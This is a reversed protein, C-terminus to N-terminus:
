SHVNEERQELLTERILHVAVDPPLDPRPVFYFLGRNVTWIAGTSPDSQTRLIQMIVMGDISNACAVCFATGDIFWTAAPILVQRCYPCEPDQRFHYPPLPHEM